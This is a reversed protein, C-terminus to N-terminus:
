AIKYLRTFGFSQLVFYRKIDISYGEKHLFLFDIFHDVKEHNTTIDLLTPPHGGQFNGEHNASLWGALVMGCRKDNIDQKMCYDYLSHLNKKDFGACFCITHMALFPRSCM